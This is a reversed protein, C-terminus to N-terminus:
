KIRKKMYVLMAAAAEVLYVAAFISNIIHIRQSGDYRDQMTYVTVPLWNGNVNGYRISSVSRNREIYECLVNGDADEMTRRLAEEGTIQNGNADWYIGDHSAIEEAMGSGFSYTAPVDQEM